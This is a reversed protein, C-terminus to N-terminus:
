HKRTIKYYFDKGNLLTLFGKKNFVTILKPLDQSPIGNNEAMIEIMYKPFKGYLKSLKLLISKFKLTNEPDTAKSVEPHTFIDSKNKNNNTSIKFDSHSRFEPVALENQKKKVTDVAATMGSVLEGEHLINEVLHTRGCRLCKKSKQSIKVYSFQQCKKCAFVLYPTEDKKFAIEEM